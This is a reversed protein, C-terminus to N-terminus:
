QSQQPQPQTNQQQNIVYLHKPSIYQSILHISHQLDKFPLGKLQDLLKQYNILKPDYLNFVIPIMNTIQFDRNQNNYKSVLPTFKEFLEKEKRETSEPNCDFIVAIEIISVISDNRTSYFIEPSLNWKTLEKVNSHNNFFQKFAVNYNENKCLRVKSDFKFGLSEILDKYLVLSAKFRLTALAIYSKIEQNDANPTEKIYPQLFSDDKNNEYLFRIIDIHGNRIVKSLTYQSGMESRHNHLFKLVHYHGNEAAQDYADLTCGETRNFHLFQVVELHGNRAAMNMARISCGELRKEHLYKVIELHGFEAAINMSNIDSALQHRECLYRVMELNGSRIAPNLCERTSIGRQILFNLSDMHGHSAVKKILDKDNSISVQRHIMLFNAIEYHGNILASDVGASTCGELRNIHLFKVIDFHGYRAAWNMANVTCPKKISHLYEVVQLHGNRSAYDIANVTCGEKRSNNLFRVIDFHGNKAAYDMADTTCWNFLNDRAGFNIEWVFLFKLIDLSGLASILDILPLTLFYQQYRFMYIFLEMDRSYKCLLTICEQDPQDTFTKGCRLIMDKILGFHRNKFLWKLSPINSHKYTGPKGTPLYQLIKSKLYKNRFVRFFLETQNVSADKMEVDTSQQKKLRDIRQKRLSISLKEAGQLVIDFIPNSERVLKVHQPIFNMSKVTDFFNNSGLVAIYKLGPHSEIELLVQNKFLTMDFELVPKCIMKCYIKIQDCLTHVSESACTRDDFLIMSCYSYAEVHYGMLDCSRAYQYCSLYRDFGNREDLTLNLSHARQYYLRSIRYKGLERYVGGLLMCLDREISQYQEHSKPLNILSYKYCKKALRFQKDSHGILGDVFYRKLDSLSTDQSLYRLPREKLYQLDDVGQYDFLQVMSTNVKSIFLVTFDSYSVILSNDENQINQNGRDLIEKYLIDHAPVIHINRPLNINPMSKTIPIVYDKQLSKASHSNLIKKIRTELTTQGNSFIHKESLFITYSVFEEEELTYGCHGDIVDLYSM